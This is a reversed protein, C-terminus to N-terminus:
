GYYTILLLTVIIAITVILLVTLWTRISAAICFIRDTLFMVENIPSM